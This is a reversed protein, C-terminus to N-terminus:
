DVTVFVGEGPDLSLKFAGADYQKAVGDKYVTINEAGPIKVLASATQNLCLEEMNTIVFGQKGTEKNELAGVLLGNKSIIVPRDFSKDDNVLYNYKQGAVKAANLMYTGKYNYGGFTDAFARLEHNVSQVAYYTDTRNGASDLMHSGDDWWGTQYCAYILSKSGFALSAYVQQRIDEIDDCWRMSGGESIPNGAAQVIVWLDRNTKKCAEALIDLNRLWAVSTTKVTKGSSLTKQTM